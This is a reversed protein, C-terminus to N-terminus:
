HDDWKAQEIPLQELESSNIYHKEDLGQILFIGVNCLAQIGDESNGKTLCNGELDLSKLNENVELTKSLSVLFKPGLLNGELSLRELCHNYELSKCLDSGEADNMMKRNIVLETLTTNAEMAKFIIRMRVPPIDQGSFTMELNTKNETM